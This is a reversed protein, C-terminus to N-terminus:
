RDVESIQAAADELDSRREYIALGLLDLLQIRKRFAAYATPTETLFAQAEVVARLQLDDQVEM